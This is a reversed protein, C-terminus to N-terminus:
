NVKPGLSNQLANRCIIAISPRFESWFESLGFNPQAVKSIQEEIEGVVKPFGPLATPGNHTDTKHRNTHGSM